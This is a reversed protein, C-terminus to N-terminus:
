RTKSVPSIGTMQPGCLSAGLQRDMTHLLEPQDNFNQAIQMLRAMGISLQRDPTHRLMALM